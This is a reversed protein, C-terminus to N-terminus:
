QTTEKEFKLTHQYGKEWDIGDESAWVEGSRHQFDHWGGIIMMKGDINIIPSHISPSYNAAATEQQWHLGDVSSWVDTAITNEDEYNEGLLWLKDKFVHLRHGARNFCDAEAEGCDVSEVELKWPSLGDFSWIDGGGKNGVAWIKDKFVIFEAATLNPFDFQDAGKVDQWNIGDESM